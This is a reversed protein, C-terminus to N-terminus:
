KGNKLFEIPNLKENKNWVEFGLYKKDNETGIKGIKQNKIIKDNEQVKVEILNMYVYIFEGNKLLVIKTNNEDLIKVIKGSDIAIANSENGNTYIRLENEIPNIGRKILTTENRCCIEYFKYKDVPINEKLGLLNQANKTQGFVTSTLVFFVFIQIQVTIKM